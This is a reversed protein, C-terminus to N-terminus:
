KSEITKTIRIHKENLVSDLEGETYAIGKVNWTVYKMINQKKLNQKITKKGCDTTLNAPRNDGCQPNLAINLERLRTVLRGSPLGPNPNGGKPRQDPQTM